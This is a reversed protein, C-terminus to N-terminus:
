RGDQLTRGVRPQHEGSAPRIFLRKTRHGILETDAIPYRDAAEARFSARCHALEDAVRVYHAQEALILGLPDGNVFCERAPVLASTASVDASESSPCAPRAM